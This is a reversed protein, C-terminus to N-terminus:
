FIETIAFANTQEEILLKRNQAKMMAHELGFKGGSIRESVKLDNTPCRLADAANEIGRWTTELFGVTEVDM